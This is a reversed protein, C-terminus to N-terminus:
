IYRRQFGTETREDFGSKGFGSEGADNLVHYAFHPQGMLDKLHRDALKEYQLPPEIKKSVCYKGLWKEIQMRSFDEIEYLHYDTNFAAQIQKVFQSRGTLILNLRSDKRRNIEGSLRFMNRVFDKLAIDSGDTIQREDMGDLILVTNKGHFFSEDKIFPTRKNLIQIEDNVDLRGLNKFEYMLVHTRKKRKEEEQRAVIAHTLMRVTSTKGHGPQGHIVIPFISKEPISSAPEADGSNSSVPEINDFISSILNPIEKGNKEKKDKIEDKWYRARPPVYIQWLTLDPDIPLPEYVKGITLAIYKELEPNNLEGLFIKVFNQLAMGFNGDLVDTVPGGKDVIEKLIQFTDSM